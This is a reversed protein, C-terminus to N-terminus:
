WYWRNTNCFLLLRTRAVLNAVGGVNTSDFYSPAVLDEAIIAGDRYVTFTFDPLPIPFVNDAGNPYSCWWIFCSCWKRCIIIGLAESAYSGAEASHNEVYIAYDGDDQICINETYPYEPGGGALDPM